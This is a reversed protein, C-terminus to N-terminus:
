GNLKDEIISFITGELERVNVGSDRTNKDATISVNVNHNRTQTSQTSYLNPEARRFYSGGAERSPGPRYQRSASLAPAMRLRAQEALAADVSSRMVSRTAEEARARQGLVGQVYGEISDAGLNAFERSPSRSNLANRGAEIVNRFFDFIRQAIKQAYAFFGRAFGSIASVGLGYFGTGIGKLANYIGRGLNSAANLVASVMKRTADAPGNRGLLRGFWKIVGRVIDPIISRGVLKDYVMGWPGLAGKAAAGTADRVPKPLGRFYKKIAKVAKEVKEVVDGVRRGFRVIPPTLLFKVIHGIIRAAARVPGPLGRWAKRAAQIRNIWKSAFDLFDSGKRLVFIIANGVFRLAARLEPAHKQALQIFKTAIRGVQRAFERAVPVIRNMFQRIQRRGRESNAWDNFRKAVDKVWKAFQRIQPM